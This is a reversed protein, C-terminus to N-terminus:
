EVCGVAYMRLARAGGCVRNYAMGLMAHGVACCAAHQLPEPALRQRAHVDDVRARASPEKLVMAKSLVSHEDLFTGGGGERAAAAM